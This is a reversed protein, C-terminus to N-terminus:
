GTYNGNAVWGPTGAAYIHLLDGTSLSVPTTAAELVVEPANPYETPGYPELWTANMLDYNIFDRTTSIGIGVASTEGWIVYHLGDDRLVVCGNRHWPLPGAVPLWSAGDQPTRSKRLYVTAQGVGSAFYFLFYFGEYFFVRPDEADAELAYPTPLLDECTGDSACYAMLLHDAAGGFAAPCGSVRVIIMSKNLFPPNPDLWAPNFVNTCASHGQGVPNRLSLAPVAGKSSVTVTYTVAAARTALLLLLASALAM